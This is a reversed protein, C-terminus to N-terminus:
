LKGNGTRLYRWEPSNLKRKVAAWHDPNYFNIGDESIWKEIIVNPISAAHWWGSRIGNKQHDTKALEKNRELIPEVDQVKQIHTVDNSADYDHFSHIGADTDLYQRGM